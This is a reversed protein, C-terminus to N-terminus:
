AISMKIFLTGMYFIHKHVIAVCIPMILKDHIVHTEVPTYKQKVNQLNSM